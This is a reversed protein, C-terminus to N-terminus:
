LGISCMLSCSLQFYCGTTIDACSALEGHWFRHEKCLESKAGMSVSGTPGSNLCFCFLFVLSFHFSSGEYAMICILPWFLYMCCFGYKVPVTFLMLEVVNQMNSCEGEGRLRASGQVAELYCDATPPPSCNVQFCKFLMEWGAPSGLAGFGACLQRWTLGRKGCPSSTHTFLSASSVTDRIFDKLTGGEIYETILNLRKDKYLVGIFKLVHPHELCRM